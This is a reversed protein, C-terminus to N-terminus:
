CAVTDSLYSGHIMAGYQSRVRVLKGDFLEPNKRLDCNAFVDRESLHVLDDELITCATGTVTSIPPKVSALDIARDNHACCNLMAIFIMVLLAVREQM